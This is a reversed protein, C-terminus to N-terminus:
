KELAGRLIQQAAWACVETAQAPSLRRIYGLAMVSEIGMCLVLASVLREYEPVKLRKRIGQLAKEIFKVRNVRPLNPAKKAVKGTVPEQMNMQALLRLAAENEYVFGQLRRVTQDVRQEVADPLEMDAIESRAITLAAEALMQQQTRFYRYATRRSVKALDAAETVTPSKGDAILQAAAELVRQRTRHKQEARGRDLYLDEKTKM